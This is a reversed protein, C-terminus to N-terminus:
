GRGTDVLCPGAIGRPPRWRRGEWPAVWLRLVRPQLAHRHPTVHRSSGPSRPPVTSPPYPPRSTEPGKDANAHRAGHQRLSAPSPLANGKPRRQMCLRGHWRIGSIGSACGTLPAWCSCRPRSHTTQQWRNRHRRNLRVTPVASARSLWAEIQAVSAAGPLVRGDAAVLTPTGTVGLKIALDVNRDVPHTLRAGSGTAGCPPMGAALRDKACWM